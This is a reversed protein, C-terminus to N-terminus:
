VVIATVFHLLRLLSKLVGFEHRLVVDPQKVIVSHRLRRALPTPYMDGELTGGWLPDPIQIGDTGQALM